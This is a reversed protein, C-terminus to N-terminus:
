SLHHTRLHRTRSRGGQGITLMKEEKPKKFHKEIAEEVIGGLVDRLSESDILFFRKEKEDTTITSM